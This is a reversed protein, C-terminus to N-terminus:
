ESKSHFYAMWENFVIRNGLLDALQQQIRQRTIEDGDEALLTEMTDTYRENGLDCDILFDAFSSFLEKTSPARFGISFNLSTDITKGEHPSFPPIYIIDGAVLEADVVADFSEVLQLNRTPSYQQIQKDVAGAQWRRKGQGQLIFVDYQDIHAGLGSHPTSYSVMVDDFRWGPIFNFYDQLAKVDKFYEDVGQVLLSWHSEGQESFDAFPGHQVNWKTDTVSVIRSDIFDEMALGALENASIPDTFDTIANRLLVPKQQWFEEIFQRESLEHWNLKM